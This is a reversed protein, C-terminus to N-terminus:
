IENKFFYTEDIAIFYKIRWVFRLTPVIHKEKRPRRKYITVMRSVIHQWMRKQQVVIRKSSDFSNLRHPTWIPRSYGVFCQSKKGEWIELRRQAESSFLMKRSNVSRSSSPRRNVTVTSPRRKYFTVMRSVINLQSYDRLFQFNFENLKMQFVTDRNSINATYTDEITEDPLVFEVAFRDFSIRLVM